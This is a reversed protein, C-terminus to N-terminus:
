TIEHQLLVLQFVEIPIEGEMEPRMILETSVLERFGPLVDFAGGRHVDGEYTPATVPRNQFELSNAADGLRATEEIVTDQFSKGKMSYIVNKHQWVLCATFIVDGDNDTGRFYWATWLDGLGPDSGEFEEYDELRDSESMTIRFLEGLPPFAQIAAQESEYALADAQLFWLEHSQEDQLRWYAYDDAATYIRHAGASFGEAIAEAASVALATRGTLAPGTLAVVSAGATFLFQRRTFM